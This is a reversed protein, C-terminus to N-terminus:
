ILVTSHLIWYYSFIRYKRPVCSELYCLTNYYDGFVLEIPGKMRKSMFDFMFGILIRFIVGLARALCRDSTDM